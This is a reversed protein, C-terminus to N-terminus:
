QAKANDFLERVVEIARQYVRKHNRNKERFIDAGYVISHLHGSEEEWGPANAVECRDHEGNWTSQAVDFREQAEQVSQKQERIKAELSVASDENTRLDM